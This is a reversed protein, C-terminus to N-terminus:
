SSRALCRPSPYGRAIARTEKQERLSRQERASSSPLLLVRANSTSPTPVRAACAFFIEADFARRTNSRQAVSFARRQVGFAAVFSAAGFRTGHTAHVRACMEKARADHARM